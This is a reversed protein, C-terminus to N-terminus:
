EIDHFCNWFFVTDAAFMSHFICRHHAVASSSVNDPACFIWLVHKGEKREIQWTNCCCNVTCTPVHTRPETLCLKKLEKHQKCIISKWINEQWWKVEKLVFKRDGLYFVYNGYDPELRQDKCWLNKRQLLGKAPMCQIWVSYYDWRRRDQLYVDWVYLMEGNKSWSKCGQSYM